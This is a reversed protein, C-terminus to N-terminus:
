PSERTIAVWGECVRMVLSNTLMAGKPHFYVIALFLEYIKTFLKQAMGFPLSHSSHCEQLPIPGKKFFMFCALLSKNKDKNM